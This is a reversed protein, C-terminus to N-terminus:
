EESRPIDFIKELTVLVEQGSVAVPHPDGNGFDRPLDAIVAVSRGTPLATGTVLQAGPTGATIAIKAKFRDGEEVYTGEYRVRTADVGYVEGDGIYLVGGGIALETGFEIVYLGKITSVKDEAEVKGPQPKTGSPLYPQQGKCTTTRLLEPSWDRLMRM